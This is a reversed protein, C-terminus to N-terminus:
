LSSRGQEVMYRQHPHFLAGKVKSQSLWRLPEAPPVPETVKDRLRCLYFYGINHQSLEPYKDSVFHREAQGLFRLVDLEYGTEELCERRLCEEPTEDTLLEGGILFHETENPTVVALWGLSDFIVGYSCLRRRYEKTEDRRGFTIM